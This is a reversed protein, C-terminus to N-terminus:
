WFLESGNQRGNQRGLQTRNGATYQENFTITPALGAIQQTEETVDGAADYAYTYTANADSVSQLLGAPNYAYDITETPSGVPNGSSDVPRSLPTLRSM